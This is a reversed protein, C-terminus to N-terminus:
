GITRTEIYESHEVKHNLHPLPIYVWFKWTIWISVNVGLDFSVQFLFTVACPKISLDLPNHQLREVGSAATKILGDSGIFTATSARGTFTETSPIYPTAVSGVELQAGYIYIGSVGDGTYTISGSSSLMMRLPVSESVQATATVLVRYWGGGVPLVFCVGVGGINTVTGNVLDVIFTPEVGV